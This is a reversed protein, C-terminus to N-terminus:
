LVWDEQHQVHPNRDARRCRQCIRDAECVWSPDFHVDAVVGPGFRAQLAALLDADLGSTDYGLRLQRLGRLGTSRLFMRAVSGSPTFNSVDLRRLNGLKRSRTLRALGDESLDTVALDLETLQGVHKWKLLAALGEDGFENCDLFLQTLNVLHRSRTLAAIGDASLYNDIEDEEGLRLATVSGLHSAGALAELGEDEIGCGALDLVRLNTLHSAAAIAHAVKPGLHDGGHFDLMHLGSLEPLSLVKHTYDEPWGRSTCGLGVIGRLWSAAARLRAFPRTDEEFGYYQDFYVVRIPHAAFTKEAQDAYADFDEFWGVSPFGRDFLQCNEKLGAAEWATLLRGKLDDDPPADPPRRCWEIHLRIFQARVQQGQDELWDAFVLRHTDDEPNERIAALFASESM